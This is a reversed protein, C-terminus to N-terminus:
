KMASECEFFGKTTEQSFLMVCKEKSRQTLIDTFLKPKAVFFFEQPSKLKVNTHRLALSTKFQYFKERNDITFPAKM